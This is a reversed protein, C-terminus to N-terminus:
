SSFLPLNSFSVLSSTSPRVLDGSRPVQQWHAAGADPWCEDIEERFMEEPRLTGSGLVRGPVAAERLRGGRRAPCPLRRRKWPWSPRTQGHRREQTPGHNRRYIYRPSSHQTARPSRRRKFDLTQPSNSIIQAQRQIAVPSASQGTPRRRM